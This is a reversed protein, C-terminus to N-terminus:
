EIKKILKIYLYLIVPIFAVFLCWIAGIFPRPYFLYSFLLALNGIIIFTMAFLKDPIGIYVMSIVAILYIRNIWESNKMQGWNWLLYPNDKKYSCKNEIFLFQIMYLIALITYTILIGIIIQKNLKPMNKYFYLLLFGLVLPQLYNFIMGLFSVSKNYLDCYQHTWLLFEILQMITVFGLFLGIIKYSIENELYLLYSFFAGVTFAALSVPASYCM